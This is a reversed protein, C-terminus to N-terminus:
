DSWLNDYSYQAVNSGVAQGGESRPLCDSQADPYAGRVPRGYQPCHAQAQKHADTFPEAVQTLLPINPNPQQERRRCRRGLTDFRCVKNREVRTRVWQRRRGAPRHYQTNTLLQREHQRPWLRACARGNQAMMFAQFDTMAPASRAAWGALLGPFAPFCRDPVALATAVATALM